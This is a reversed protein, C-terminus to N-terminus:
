GTTRAATFALDASEREAPLVIKIIFKERETFTKVYGKYKNVTKHISMLGYGHGTEEKTSLLKGGKGVKMGGDYTNEIKLILHEGMARAFVSIVRTKDKDMHMCAELANQLANGILVTIHEPTCSIKCPIQADCRFTIGENAAQEAYSALLINAAYNSCYSGVGPPPLQETLATLYSRLLEYEGDRAYGDLVRLHHKLDHQIRYIEKMREVMKTYDAGSRESMSIM